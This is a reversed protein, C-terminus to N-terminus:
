TCTSHKHLLVDQSSTARRTINTSLTPNLMPGRWNAGACAYGDHNGNQPDQNLRQYLSQAEGVYLIQYKGNSSAMLAYVGATNNFETGSEYVDFVYSTGSAGTLNIKTM